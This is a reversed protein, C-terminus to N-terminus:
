VGIYAVDHLFSLATSTSFAGRAKAPTKQVADSALVDLIPPSAVVSRWAAHDWPGDPQLGPSWGDWATPLHMCRGSRSLAGPGDCGSHIPGCLAPSAHVWPRAPNPSRPPM